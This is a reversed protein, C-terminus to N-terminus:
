WCGQLKWFTPTNQCSCCAGTRIVCDQYQSYPSKFQHFYSYFTKCFLIPMWVLCLIGSLNLIRKVNFEMNHQWKSHIFNCVAWLSLSCNPSRLLSPSLLQLKPSPVPWIAWGQINKINIIFNCLGTLAKVDSMVICTIWFMSLLCNYRLLVDTHDPSGSSLLQSM